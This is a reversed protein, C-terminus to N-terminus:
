LSLSLRETTDSEKSGWPSYLGRFERPWSVPSPLWERRRSIKGVWADFWTEWMEPPNKVLQPVLSAWIDKWILINKKPPTPHCLYMYTSNSPLINKKIKLSIETCNKVWTHMNLWKLWTRSQAIRHVTAQWVRGDMPNELYSYQLPNGHGGGPSRGPGPISGTHRIDGSNAPVNKKGSTGGPFGM